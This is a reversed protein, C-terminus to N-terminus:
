CATRGACARAAIPLDSTTRADYFAVLPPTLLRGYMYYVDDFPVKIVAGVTYKQYLPTSM